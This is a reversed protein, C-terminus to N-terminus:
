IRHKQVVEMKTTTDLYGALEESSLIKLEQNEGVVSVAVNYQNIELDQSKKMAGLAFYILDDVSAKELQDLKNELFTNATQCRAGIAICNYEFYNASPDTRFLRPGSSQTIIKYLYMMVQFWYVQEM